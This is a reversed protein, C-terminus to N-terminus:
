RDPHDSDGPTRVPQIGTARVNRQLAALGTRKIPNHRYQEAFAQPTLALLDGARPTANGPRPWFAPEQAYGSVREARANWPCVEQCIDCGFVWDGLQGAMPTPLSEGRYEITWYALCRNADVVGPAVIAQTPCASLCRTCRGCHSAMPVPDDALLDSDLLLEGIFCYSGFQPHIVLGNKGLWGLGARVALAKELVPASDTFARGQTGPIDNQIFALLAKLRHKLVRHYDTGRAYRAIKVADPAPNDPEPHAYSMLVCVIAKVSPMLARPDIRKELHAQMWAMDAHYGLGLWQRLREGELTLADPSVIGVACFGLARAQERIRRTREARTSPATM